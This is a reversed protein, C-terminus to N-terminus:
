SWIISSNKPMELDLFITAHEFKRRWQYAGVKVRKELPNGLPKKLEPYFNDPTCCSDPKEPCTVFGQHLEYWLAYTMYTNVEAVTLFAAMPFVINETMVDKWSALGGKPETNNWWQPLNDAGGSPSVMLGPWFSCFVNKSKNAAVKEINDLDDVCKDLKLGGTKMDIQEFVAFHENMVADMVGIVEFNHPDEPNQDYESLANGMVIADHLPHVEKLRHQVEAIMAVKATNRKALREHSVGPIAGWGANDALIGDLVGSATHNLPVNVWWDVAAPVSYDLKNKIVNGKDDKM